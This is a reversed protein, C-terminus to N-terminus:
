GFFFYNTILRWVQFHKFILERNFSLKFPTVLGLQVAPTPLVCATTYARTVPPMQLYEQRLIQYPM